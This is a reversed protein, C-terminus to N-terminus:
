SKPVSLYGVVHKKDLKTVTLEYPKQVGEVYFYIPENIHQDNKKMRKDGAFIELDFRQKSVDIDNLKLAVNFLTMIGTKETLEFNYVDRALSHKVDAIEKTNAESMERVSSVAKQTSEIEGTNRATVNRLDSIGSNAEVVQKKIEDAENRLANVETRDAKQQGVVAL